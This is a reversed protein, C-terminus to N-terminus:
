DKVKVESNLDEVKKRQCTTEHESRTVERRLGTIIAMFIVGLISIVGVYMLHLIM